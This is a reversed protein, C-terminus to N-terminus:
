ALSLWNIRLAYQSFDDRLSGDSYVYCFRYDMPLVTYDNNHM